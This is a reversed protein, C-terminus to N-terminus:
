RGGERRAVEAKLAETSVAGLRLRESVAALEKAVVDRDVPRVNQVTPNM